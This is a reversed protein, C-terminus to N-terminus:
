RQRHTVTQVTPQAGGAVLAGLRVSAFKQEDLGRVNASGPFSQYVRLRGLLQRRQGSRDYALLETGVPITAMSDEFHVHAAKNSYDIKVVVGPWNHPQLTPAKRTAVIPALMGNPQGPGPPLVAANHRMRLATDDRSADPLVGEGEVAPVPQEIVGERRDRIPAPVPEPSVEIVPSSDPCCTQLAKIAAERVRESPELHCGTDDREYAMQALRKLITENCCCTKGCNSCCEGEAAESISEVTALRVDETCDDSASMLAETISGDTDYCGCGIEALYKVAKIKQRKLDEAEKIKAAKKIVPVESELNAPDALAKLPGKQELCPHNGRRNFLSGHIKSIGQPIGLFSWLTPTSPAQASAGEALLLLAALIPVVVLRPKKM